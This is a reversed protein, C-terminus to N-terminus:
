AHRVFVLLMRGSSASLPRGDWEGYGARLELGAALACDRITQLRFLQLCHRDAFERPADNTGAGAGYLRYRHQLEVRGEAPLARLDLNRERELRLGEPSSARETPGRAAGRQSAPMRQLLRLYPEPRWFEALVPAGPRLLAALAAFAETLAAADPLYHFVGFLSSVGDLGGDAYQRLEAPPNRLDGTYFRDTKFRERAARVMAESADLGCVAFGREGLARVHEGSGCGADLLRLEGAAQRASPGAASRGATRFFNALFDVEARLRLARGELAFYLPALGAFLAPTQLHMDSQNLM